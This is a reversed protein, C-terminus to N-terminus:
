RFLALIQPALLYLVVNDLTHSFIPGWLSRTRLVTVGYFLGVLLVFLLDAPNLYFIHLSAFVLTVFGLGGRTGLAEVARRLMIGRFALEESLGTAVFIILVAAILGGWLGETSWPTPRLVEYEILGLPIGTLAIGAQVAASRASLVLGLDKPGMKQIYAVAGIAGLLPVSIIALWFLIPFDAHPLSLSLIRVLPAFGTALLLYSRTRDRISVLVSHFLLAFLIAVHLAYGYAQYPYSPPNGPEQISLIVEALVILALYVAPAVWRPTRHTEAETVTVTAM